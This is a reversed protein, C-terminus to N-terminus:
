PLADLLQQQILPAAGAAKPRGEYERLWRLGRLANSLWISDAQLLDEPLAPSESVDYGAKLLWTVLHRRMVGAVCGESLPPTFIKGASVWFLNSISGESIRGHQNCLLAEDWGRAQAQRAALVLPLANSSKLHSFDDALRMVGRALGVIMGTSNQRIFDESLATTEICYEAAWAGSTYAGSGPWVQLRIRALDEHGNKRITQWIEHSIEQFFDKPFAIGLTEMGLRLREQHFAELRIKGGYLLMTEFLAYGYRFARSAASIVPADAPLLRGNLNLFM